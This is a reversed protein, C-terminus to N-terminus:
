IQQNENRCLIGNYSYVMIDKDTRGDVLTYVTELKFSNYIINSHAKGTSTEPYM